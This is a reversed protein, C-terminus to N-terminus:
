RSNRPRDDPGHHGPLRRHQGEVARGLGAHLSPGPSTGVANRNFIKEVATLGQGAHSVEKAAAYVAPKTWGSTEGRLDPAEQRLRRRLLRRAKMFELKQPTFAPSIDCLEKRRRTTSSKTRHQDDPRHGHRDSYTRWCPSATTTSSVDGDRRSRGLEQPRARHRRHRRRHHPLDALHRQHRRRDARHQHVPRLPEGARRDLPRRQQRGSMRSSGVGMTGKRPSLMIRKDPHQAQAGRAADQKQGQRARLHVQGHLERDSAPTRTPARPSCTPPSTAWRPSSLHRGPDDRRDGPAHHLVRGPTARLIETPSRTAPRYAAKLRDTDAEYLFVQTKLVDAAQRAIGADDGLPLDLLVEVSPGGKM